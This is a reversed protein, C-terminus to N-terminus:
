VLEKLGSMRALSIVAAVLPIQGGGAVTALGLATAARHAHRLLPAPDKNQSVFTKPGRKAIMVM